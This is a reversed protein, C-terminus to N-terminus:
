LILKEIHTLKGDKSMGEIIVKLSKSVDNNYFSFKLKSNEATTIIEPNWYLTTRLDPKDDGNLKNYDPSYFQRTYSYGNMSNTVTGKGPRTQLDDFKRTYIAIAGGGGKISGLFPPRFAKIYAISNVNLTSVIQENVDMEDLFYIPNAGRFFNRGIKGRLYAWIDLSIAASPDHLLDFQYGDIEGGFVGSAYKEDLLQLTSKIRTKIVVNQLLKGEYEKLLKSMEDSLQIHRSYGMTDTIYGPSFSTFSKRNRFPPFRNEAFEITANKISKSPQFYVRTSDFLITGPDAFSGDPLVPITLLRNGGNNQQSLFLSIYSKSKLQSLQIGHIKGALSLYNTERAFKIIPMKEELLDKWIFRRWGHTLMVLDLHQAVLDNNASFYYSPNNIQGKLDSTLLFSSIITNSTDTDIDSDIVSVSFSADLSDPVAIEIENFGRKNLNSQLINVKPDIRFEENNIFTIREALPNWHNDFVTITLIGSPLHETPIIGQVSAKSIDKTTKFVQHQNITGLLHIKGLSLALDQPVNISFKRKSGTVSLQLSVGTSKVPPLFTTHAAGKEDEWKASFSDGPKPFLFFYGMGDHLVRLSDILKNENDTIVGKLKVPRGWQDNAKFAIKNNVGEVLDGGEPFFSIIPNKIEEISLPNQKSLIRINKEYLFASDFNLMWKTYAKVHIYDGSYGIPIDFQGNATADHLLSVTRFLLNGNNDSWDVYLTKSRMAPAIGEMLYAKFWITEGPTYSTKDYHLYTREPNFEKEYKLIASDIGQAFVPVSSFFFIYLLGTIKRM